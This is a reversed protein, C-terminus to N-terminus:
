SPIGRPELQLAGQGTHWRQGEGSGRAGGTPAPARRRHGVQRECQVISRCISAPRRTPLLCTGPSGWSQHNLRIAPTMPAGPARPPETPGGPVANYLIAITVAGAVHVPAANPGLAGYPPPPSKRPVKIKRPFNRMESPGRFKGRSIRPGGRIERVGATCVPSEPPPRHM